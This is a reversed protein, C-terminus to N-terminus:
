SYQLVLEARKVLSAFDTGSPLRALAFERAKEALSDRLEPQNSLHKQFYAIALITAWLDPDLGLSQGEQMANIGVIGKFSDDPSFSGDFSQLRVLNVVNDDVPPLPVSQDGGQTPAPATQARAFAPSQSRANNQDAIPSAARSEAESWESDSHGLISSLTTFTSDTEDGEGDDEDVDYDVPSGPRSPLDGGPVTHSHLNEPPPGVWTDIFASVFGGVYGFARQLYSDLKRQWHIKNNRSSQHPSHSGHPRPRVMGPPLPTQSSDTEQAEVAVFSTYRSALQYREGLKIISAARESDPMMQSRSEDELETILRRAALTHVLLSPSNEEEFKVIEVPVSFKLEDGTGDRQARLYIENPPTFRDSKILAFIILRTGPYLAGIHSPTQWMTQDLSTFQVVRPAAHDSGQLDSPIGWDISINKLLFTKGARLLKSCKGVISEPTAAMLCVGNGARAIGECM